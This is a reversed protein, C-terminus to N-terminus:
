ALLGPPAAFEPSPAPLASLADLIYSPEVRVTFDHSFQRGKIIRDTDIVFTAPVPLNWEGNANLEALDLGFADRYLQIVSSTVAFRVDYAQMVAQEEDACVDLLAGNDESIRRSVAQRQPHVFLLSAGAELIRPLAKALARMEMTCFPCWVGRFFCLAVPGRDLRAYLEVDELRQNKLVFNPARDGVALGKVSGRSGEVISSAIVELVEPPLNEERFAHLEANLRTSEM